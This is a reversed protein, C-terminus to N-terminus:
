PSAQGDWGYGDAFSVRDYEACELAAIEADLETAYAADPDQDHVVDAWTESMGPDAPDTFTAWETACEVSYRFEASEPRDHREWSDVVYWYRTVSACGGSHLWRVSWSPWAGDGGVDAGHRLGDQPTWTSVVGVVV